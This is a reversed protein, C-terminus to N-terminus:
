PLLSPEALEQDDQDPRGRERGMAGLGEDRPPEKGSYSKVFEKPLTFKAVVMYRLGKGITGKSTSDLGPKMPGAIDVTLCFQDPHRVRAHRKGTGRAMVCTICDRRYDAHNSRVHARWQEPTLAMVRPTERPMRSWFKLATVMADVFGPSWEGTRMKADDVDGQGEQEHGLDQLGMLYYINTGLTTPSSTPAGTARQDFTVRSLKYYGEFSQWMTTTWLARSRAKATSPSSEAPHELMFGVPRNCNPGTSKSTRAAEAVAYLWMMRAMLGMVKIDSDKPVEGDQLVGGRGPPGGVIADIKGLMAGLQLLRWTSRRTIDQGRCRDADLELVVTDNEDAQFFKYNGPNGAYLHVIWRKATWLRRRQPRSLFDVERLVKWGAKKVDAELLGNLCPGPLGQLFPADRLSRLGDAANGTQVFERLYEQWGREMYVAAMNVSDETDQTMNELDERRRDEIRSIMALAELECLQPCGGQVKLRTILGEKDILNCHGPGWDLRYGLTSVLM